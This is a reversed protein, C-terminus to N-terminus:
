NPQKITESEIDEVKTEELKSGAWSAAATKLAGGGDQPKPVWNTFIQKIKNLDQEIKNLRGVVSNSEPIGVEGGQMIINNADVNINGDLSKVIIDQQIIATLVGSESEDLIIRNGKPTIFGLVHPKDLDPPMEGIAWGHYSWLPHRPDGNEFEVYVISGERPSLWKFGSGPGGQQHKPYAWVEVGRLISPLHVCVKNQSDPDNSTIVIGRYTSYFRGIAEIGRQQIIEYLTM